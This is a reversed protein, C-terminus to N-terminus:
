ADPPQKAVASYAFAATAAAILGLGVMGAGQTPSVTSDPLFSLAYGILEAVAFAAGLATAGWLIGTAWRRERAAEPLGLLRPVGVLVPCLVLWAVSGSVFRGFWVVRGPASLGGDTFRGLEAFASVVGLASAALLSGALVVLGQHLRVLENARM